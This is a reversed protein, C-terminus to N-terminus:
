NNKRRTYVYIQYKPHFEIQLEEMQDFKNVSYTYSFLRRNNHSDSVHFVLPVIQLTIDTEGVTM